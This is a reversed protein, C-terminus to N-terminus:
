LSFLKLPFFVVKVLFRVPSRGMSLPLKVLGLIVLLKLVGGAHYSDPLFLLLSSHILCLRSAYKRIGMNESNRM